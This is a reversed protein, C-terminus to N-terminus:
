IEKSVEMTSHFINEYDNNKIGTETFLPTQLVRKKRAKLRLKSDRPSRQSSHSIWQKISRLKPSCTKRKKADPRRLCLSDRVRLNSRHSAEKDASATAMKTRPCRASWALPACWWSRKKQAGNTSRWKPPCSVMVAKEM